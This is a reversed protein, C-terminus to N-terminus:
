FIMRMVHTIKAPWQRNVPPLFASILDEELQDILSTNAVEAYYFWLHDAWKEIMDAIHPRSKWSALTGLYQKYRKRFNQDRVKGIYLLYSCAPHQAVEANVVFSYVGVKNDPVLNVNSATFKIKQWTLQVQCPYASWQIPCLIFRPVHYDKIDKVTKRTTILDM